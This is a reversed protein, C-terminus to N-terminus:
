QSGGGVIIGFALFNFIGLLLIFVWIIWGRLQKLMNSRNHREARLTGVEFAQMMISFMTDAAQGHFREGILRMLELGTMAPLPPLCEECDPSPYLSGKEALCDPCPFGLVEAQRMTNLPRTHDTWMLAMGNRIGSSESHGKMYGTTGALALRPLYGDSTGTIDRAANPNGFELILFECYAKAFKDSSEGNRRAYWYVGVGGGFFAAVNIFGRLADLGEGTIYAGNIWSSIWLLLIAVTLGIGFSKWFGSGFRFGYAAIFAKFMADVLERNRIATYPAAGEAKGVLPKELRALARREALPRSTDYLRAM